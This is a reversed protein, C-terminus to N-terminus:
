GSDSIVLYAVYALITIRTTIKTSTTFSILDKDQPVDLVVAIMGGPGVGPSYLPVESMLFAWGGLVVM